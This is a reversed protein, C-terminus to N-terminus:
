ITPRMLSMIRRAPSFMAAKSISLTTRWSGPMTSQATVGTGSSVRMSSTRIVMSRGAGASPAAGAASSASSRRIM